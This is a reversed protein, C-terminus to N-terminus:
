DAKDYKKLSVYDKIYHFAEQKQSSINFEKIILRNHRKISKNYIKDYHNKLLSDILSTFNKEQALRKIKEFDEKSIKEQIRSFRKLFLDNTKESWKSTYEKVLAKIREDYDRTILLMPSNIIKKRLDPHVNAHGLRGEIEVLIVKHHKQTQYACYLDNEFQQQTAPEETQNFDGFTSGRHKALGELDLCGIINKTLVEKILETKGAGTLGHLVLFTHKSVKEKIETLISKRYNKYGGELLTIKYGMSSLFLAVSHSRM